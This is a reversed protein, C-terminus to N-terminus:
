SGAALLATLQKALVRTFTRQGAPNLHVAGAFFVDPLTPPLNTLLADAKLWSNWKLLLERERRLEVTSSYSEAVPTLGVLLKAGSPIEARFTESEAELGQALELRQPKRWKPTPVAGFDLLSGDHATMYSDVESSFGFYAAGAGHGRLPTALCHTLINERLIQSGTWDASRRPTERLPDGQQESRVQEWYEEERRDRELSLKGPSVLLM